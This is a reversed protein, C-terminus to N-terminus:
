CMWLSGRSQFIEDGGCNGEGRGRGARQVPYIQVHVNPFRRKLVRVIDRVAAGTPSTIVGIRRPLVPLPKKREAAFLGEAELRKKMQEFALQLAGLGVPEIQTVYM